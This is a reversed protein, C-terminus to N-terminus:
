RKTWALRSFWADLGLVLIEAASSTSVTLTVISTRVYGAENTLKCRYQYGNRYSKAEVSMTAKTASTGSCAKWSGTSSTRYYWQYSEAGTAKVTFKVTTGASATQSKPQTTIVPKSIVTLTAAESTVTGAASKVTCRYQYGNRYSAATVSLAATTASAATSNKWTGTSSTRYQWQYGTAGDARVSFVVTSGPAATVSVPQTTITPKSIVTLTATRSYKYGLQNTVKCRYQYGNRYAKTEVSLSNTTAETGSCKKWSGTSSTRYYWQYGLTGGTATIEFTVIEGAMSVADQPQVKIIPKCAVTLIAPNSTVTGAASSVACRYQYGNRTSTASVQLSATNYGTTASSSNKWTVGGDSSWQWQYSLNEGEASITFVATEGENVSCDEPQAVIEPMPPIVVTVAESELGGIGDADRASIKYVCSTGPDAALDLYSLADTELILEFSGEGVSRWLRYAAANEVATWQLAPRVIENDLVATLQPAEMLWIAYLDMDEYLALTDGPQWVPEAADAERAWGQFVYGPRSPATEPLSLSEGCAVTRDAPAGSGGNADFHLTYTEIQWVAYLTTDAAFIYSEGPLYVAEVADPSEAWGLFAADARVPIQESITLSEGAEAFQPVPEGVGGNADYSVRSSTYTAWVETIGKGVYSEDPVSYKTLQEGIEGNESLFWGVFRSKGEQIQNPDDATLVLGNEQSPLIWGREEVTLGSLKFVCTCKKSYAGFQSYWSTYFPSIEGNSNVIALVTISYFDSETENWVPTFHMNGNIPYVQGPLYETDTEGDSWFALTYMNDLTHFNHALTNFPKTVGELMSASDGPVFVRKQLNDYGYDYTVQWADWVAYLTMSGTATVSEGPLYDPVRTDPLTSWGLFSVGDMTPEMTTVTFTEGPCVNVTDPQGLGGNPDYQIRATAERSYVPYLVVDGTVVSNETVVTGGGHEETTWGVIRVPNGDIDTWTSDDLIFLGIDAFKCGVNVKKSNTQNWLFDTWIMLNFVSNFRARIEMDDSYFGYYKCINTQNGNEDTDYTRGELVSLTVAAVDASRWVARLSISSTLIIISGPQYTSLWGSWSDFVYGERTPIEEPITIFTGYPATISDPGGVGGNPDFSITLSMIVFVPYLDISADEEYYSGYSFEATDSDPVRAWGLFDHGLRYDSYDLKLSIGRYKTLVLNEEPDDCHFTVTYGVFTWVAYLTVSKNATYSGGPSYEASAATKSTAWGEFQYGDRVPVTSSLTLTKGHTKTQSAPAGTGGNADYKVTYTAAVVTFSSRYLEYSKGDVTAKIVYIYSGPSLSGIKCSTDLKSGQISYTKGSASVETGTKPNSLSTDSAAYVRASVKSLTGSGANITGKLTMSVGQTRTGKPATVGTVSPPTGVGRWTISAAEYDKRVSATWTSNSDPYEAIVHRSAFATSDFSPADGTFTITTTNGLYGYNDDGFARVGVYNLGAPLVISGLSDCNSFACTNISTVTSPISVSSLNVCDSFCDTPISTIDALIVASRLSSCGEFAGGGLYSVSSPITVSTLSSCCSFADQGITKAGDSISLSTIGKCYYFAYVGMSELSAPITVSKLKTCRSFAYAGISKLGSPLSLSSLALGEFAHSGISTVKSPISASTFGTGYYASNGISTVKSPIFAAGTLSSCGYFCRDPIVTLDVSVGIRTLSSCGEFVANGLSTANLEIASLKECGYFVKAGLSKVSDPISVSTANKCGSFAEDCLSTIGDKVIIDTVVNTSWPHSSVAGSGSITLKVVDGYSVLKWNANSGCSGSGITVGILSEPDEEEPDTDIIEPDEVPEEAAALPDIIEILNEGEETEIPEIIEIEEAYAPAPVLTMMLVVILLLAVRKKWSQM